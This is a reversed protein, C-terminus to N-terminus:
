PGGAVGRDRPLLGLLAEGSDLLQYLAARGADLDNSGRVAREPEPDAAHARGDPPVVREDHDVARGRVIAARPARERRDVRLVDHPDLDELVRRRGREVAHAAPVADDEDRRAM